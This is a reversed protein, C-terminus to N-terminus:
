TYCGLGYKENCQKAQNKTNGIIKYLETLFINELRHYTELRYYTLIPNEKKLRSSPKIKRLSGHLRQRCEVVHPFCARIIIVSCSSIDKECYIM